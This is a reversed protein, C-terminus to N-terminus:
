GVNFVSGGIFERLLSNMPIEKDPVPVFYTLFHLLRQAEPMAPSDVPVESLVKVAKPYLAPIEYVMATNFIADANEQYPFIWKEEGRRVSPWRLLTDEASCGRTTYDRCMRRLLRNDSTSIRTDSDLRLATLASAYVLFKHEPAIEQTLMPNLAHIGEIILIDEPELQLTDGLYEREGRQFNYTLLQVERGDILDQLDKNFQPIDVSYVSEFDQEGNEDLPTQDRNVFWNDMSLAVPRKLCTMLQVSLRKSTSTKGSSSPGALLVIRVDPRAAIDEAIRALHKEQLAETTRIIDGIRGGKIANNLDTVDKLGAKANWEARERITDEIKSM